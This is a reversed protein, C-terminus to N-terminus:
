NSNEYIVSSTTTEQLTLKKIPLNKEVLKFIHEALNEASTLNNLVSLKLDTNEESMFLHLYKLLPDKKNILLSHDLQKIIPEVILDIDSFLMTIGTDKNYDLDFDMIIYYTHGHLNSCKDKLNENRHGAYFHYKKSIIM